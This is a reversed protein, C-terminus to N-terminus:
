ALADEVLEPEASPMRFAPKGDEPFEAADVYSFDAESSELASALCSLLEQHLIDDSDCFYVADDKALSLGTNRAASAGRNKTRCVSFRKDYAAQASCIESSGDDSGDDVLICTWDRFTQASLSDLCAPLFRAVNYVPIVVSIKM